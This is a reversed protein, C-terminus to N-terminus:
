LENTKNRLSQIHICDYLIQREKVSKSQKAYDKKPGDMITGLPLMFTNGPFM